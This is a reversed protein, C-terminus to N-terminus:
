VLRGSQAFLGFIGGTHIFLVNKGSNKFMEVMGRFAKATYVPDLIIGEISAVKKLIEVDESSPIAYGPGRYDDVVEFAPENVRLGYEEMGSIIRKVKEVFYDSNKTTVNVGVVPVRCGLFSVGASLGAITGGSGVACVIADFSELNLQDKMELVANFYGFAGLSNSGGEPIVYVKEGKKERIKRHDDFIEDIREYEEQSVEVIEAGLLLDLLLNGNLVKEGKRLFLVPKLGYKRSVYATARAHNSQLGGCTFVTTAGEKLAEWLLYELKRIKNGSGVLETFDDRKIYINFGCEESLRRLFQVPTPKLALDIRM